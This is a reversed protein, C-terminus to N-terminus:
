RRCPARAVGLGVEHDAAAARHGDGLEGRDADARTMTGNGPRSRRRASRAVRLEQDVGAGRMSIGCARASAALPEGVSSAHAARAFAAPSPTAARAREARGVGGLADGVRADGQLRARHLVLDLADVEDADAAGAHAADGFHQRGPSGPTAARVERRARRRARSARGRRRRDRDAVGGAVDGAGVRDDHRGRHAGVIGFHDRRARLPMGTTGRASISASSIRRFCPMATAPVCPLVVVVLRIARTSASPPSSGVNTMPPRSSDASALARRPM